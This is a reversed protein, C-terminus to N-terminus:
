VQYQVVFPLRHDLADKACATAAAYEAPQTRARGCDRAAHGAAKLLRRHVERDPTVRSCGAILGCGILLVAIGLTRM